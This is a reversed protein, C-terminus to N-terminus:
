EGGNYNVYKSWLRTREKIIAAQKEGRVQALYKFYLNMDGSKIVDYYEKAEPRQIARALQNVTNMLVASANESQPDISQMLEAMVPVLMSESVGAAALSVRLPRAFSNFIKDAGGSVGGAYLTDLQQKVKKSGQEQRVRLAEQQKTSAMQSRIDNLQDNMKYDENLDMMMQQTMEVEEYYIDDFIPDDEEWAIVYAPTYQIDKYERMLKEMKKEKNHKTLLMTTKEGTDINIGVAKQAVYMGKFRLDDDFEKSETRFWGIDDDTIASGKYNFLGKSNKGKVIYKGDKQTLIGGKDTGTVQNLIFLLRNPDNTMIRGSSNLRWGNKKPPKSYEDYGFLNNFHIDAGSSSSEFITKYDDTPSTVTPGQTLGKAMEMGLSTKIEKEGFTPPKSDWSMRRGLWAIKQERTAQQPDIGTDRSFDADVSSQNYHYYDDLQVERNSEFEKSFSDDLKGMLGKYTIYDSEGKQFRDLQEIDSDFIRDRSEPDNKALLINKFNDKNTNIRHMNENNGLKYKYDALLRDLGHQMAREYSGYKKIYNNIPAMMSEAYNQVADKDQKRVGKGKIVETALQDATDIIKQSQLRYERENQTDLKQQQLLLQSYALDEQRRAKKDSAGFFGRLATYGGFDM